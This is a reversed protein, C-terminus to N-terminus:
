NYTTIYIMSHYLFLNNNRFDKSFSFYSTISSSKMLFWGLGTRQKQINCGRCGWFGRKYCIARKNRWSRKKVAKESITILSNRFEIRYVVTRNKRTTWKFATLNLLPEEPRDKANIQFTSPFLFSLKNKSYLM